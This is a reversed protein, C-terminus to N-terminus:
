VIALEIGEAMFVSSAYEFHLVRRPASSRAKSSAHILLPKMAVVGGQAVLCDVPAVQAAFERIREDSLVGISHTEPLVRLPGTDATSDGLHVRVAVVSALASTPACAHIVGSKLSWPGWGPMDRRERVRLVRDQHWSVLWNAVSSKDFLTARFVIPETGLVSRAIRIM